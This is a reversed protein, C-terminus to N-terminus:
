LLEAFYFSFISCKMFKCTMRTCPGHFDERRRELKLVHQGCSCKWARTLVALLPRVTLLAGPRQSGERSVTRKPEVARGDVRHPRTNVATDVEEVTDYTVSM